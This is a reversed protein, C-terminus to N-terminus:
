QLMCLQYSGSVLEPHCFSLLLKLVYDPSLTALISSKVEVIQQNKTQHQRYKVCERIYFIRM